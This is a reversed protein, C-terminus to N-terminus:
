TKGHKEKGDKLKEVLVLLKCLGYFNLADIGTRQRIKDIRTYLTKRSIHADIAAASTRMGNNALARIISVDKEDLPNQIKNERIKTALWAIGPHDMKLDVVAVM